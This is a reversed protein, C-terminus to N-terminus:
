KLHSQSSRTIVEPHSQLSKSQGGGITKKWRLNLFHLNQTHMTFSHFYFSGLDLKLALAPERTNVPCPNMTNADNYWSTTSGPEGHMYYFRIVKRDPVKPLLDSSTPNKLSYYDRTEMLRGSRNFTRPHIKRSFDSSILRGPKDWSKLAETSSFWTEILRGTSDWNWIRSAKFSWSKYYLGYLLRSVWRVRKELSKAAYFLRIHTRGEGGLSCHVVRSGVCANASMVSCASLALTYM